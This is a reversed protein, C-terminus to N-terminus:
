RRNLVGQEAPRDHREGARGALPHTVGKALYRVIANLTRARYRPAENFLQHNANEIRYLVAAPFNKKLRAANYKGDVIADGTGQILYVEKSSAGYKELHENWRFLSRVWHLPIEKRLLPDQFLTFRMFKRDSSHVPLPRPLSKAFPSLVRYALKVVPWLNPHVLPAALVVKGASEHGRALLLEVVASCGMSHGVLHVPTKLRAASFRVVRELAGAYASFDRVAAPAGSSLGHGPLDFLVVAYGEKLLRRAAHKFYGGHELYGHVLVVTARHKGPVFVHTALGCRKLRLLGFYHRAGPFDLGYYKFYHKEPESFGSTRSLDLRKLRKKTEILHREIPEM